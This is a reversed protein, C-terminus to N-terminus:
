QNHARSALKLRITELDERSIGLWNAISDPSAAIAGCITELNYYGKSIIERAQDDSFGSETLVAKYRIDFCIGGIGGEREDFERNLREIDADFLPPPGPTDLAVRIFELRKSDPDKNDQQPNNQASM